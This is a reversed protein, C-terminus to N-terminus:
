LNSNVVADSRFGKLTPNTSLNIVAWYVEGDSQTENDYYTEFKIKYRLSRQVDFHIPLSFIYANSIDDSVSGLSVEGLVETGLASVKQDSVVDDDWSLIYSKEGEEGLIGYYVTIKLKTSAAILGDVYVINFEKDRAPESFSFEKTVYVHNIGTGNASKRQGIEYVNQNYASGFYLKRDVFMFDAAPEDDISIDGTNVYYSITKRVDDADWASCKIVRKNPYYIVAADSFDWDKLTPLIVSTLTNVQLDDGNLTKNLLKLGEFNTVYFSDQGLTSEGKLNTAGTDEGATVTNFVEDVSTGDGALDRVYQIVADDKHIVLGNKGKATLLNIGGGGEMVDFDGADGLGGPVSTFDTVDGTKSYTVLSENTPIGSLFLKGQTTLLINGKDLSSYTTTDAKQAVGYYATPNQVTPNPTVGTFTKATIGTYAYETGDVLISGTATFGETSLTENCVITNATVSAITATAGNWTSFNNVGNCFVLLNVKSANNGNAPAFGMIAGQTLSAVLQEWKGESYDPNSENWWELHSNTGDDRVRLKMRKVTGFNKKFVYTRLIEGGATIENAVLGYGEKTQIIGKLSFDINRVESANRDAIKDETTNTVLGGLDIINKFDVM